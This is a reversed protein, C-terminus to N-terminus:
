RRRALEEVTLVRDKNVDLRDFVARLRRPVENRTLKGDKNADYRKILAIGAPTAASKKRSAQGPKLPVGVDFYGIMMENWTQDGWRVTATPDPNALNVESNDFHAVCHIRTGPPLALPKELRYATQWNFDYHPIDLLTRTRGDPFRAEYRFAKGRLHMHPMMRLLQVELPSTPSTAEHRSNGAGPPIVLGRRKLAQQTMVVHTVEDGRAYVLGLRSTDEQRTGIPTYHVQFILSSGAPIFKAMGDPFSHLRAGPVYSALFAGPGGTWGGHRSGKPARVFVLIHHVVARNGPQLEALQVWRDERFKPDVTFYKYRVTGEAPVSFPKDAMPIVVDPKRPLQWGITFKVPEPLDAPNGEPAGDAVWRHVLQREADNLHRDNAFRGHRPDAHWPPMRRQSVVEDITEAWGVVEDYDTLAFPAIQGERHCEVCRRQLLRAIQKSYTVPADPRPTRIRGIFCGEASTRPTKVARGALLDEIANKLDQSGVKDRIYGVGYQDDIRGHYRISRNRDLLFVEPTREAGIKDAVRNGLDKLVPFGIGHRRAHAAVETISDHCNANIGIFAVGRDRYDLELAVLRPAYLKALPCETGLFALVVIPQDAVGSLSHSKGRYDNLTFDAVKRGIRSPREAAMVPGCCFGVALLSIWACRIM